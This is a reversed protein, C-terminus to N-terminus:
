NLPIPSEPYYTKLEPDGSGEVNPLSAPGRTSLPCGLYKHFNNLTQTGFVNQGFTKVSLKSRFTKVSLKSLNKRKFGCKPFNPPPQPSPNPAPAQQAPAPPQPSPTLPQPQPQPSPSPSPAPAQIMPFWLNVKKM